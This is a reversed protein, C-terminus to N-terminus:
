WNKFTFTADDECIPSSTPAQPSKSVNPSASSPNTSPKLQDPWKGNVFLEKKCEKKYRGCVSNCFQEGEIHESCRINKKAMFWSCDVIESSKSLSFTGIADDPCPSVALLKEYM